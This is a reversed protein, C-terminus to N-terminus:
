GQTQWAAQAVILKVALAERGGGYHAGRVPAAGLHDLGIAVRVHRDTVCIENVPDFGVWGLDPVHAEAWAHGLDPGTADDDRRFYGAVYRAPVGRLRAVAIFIHSLERCAGSRRAFAEAASGGTDATDTDCAIDEHLRGLLRHLMDLTSGGAHEFQAAYAALAADARTLATERLFLSPPFREVAGRVVGATDQTEVEGEVMVRLDSVPGTASFAHTLNGFADEQPELRCDASVDIRWDVVYQGTHNRPTLRLTQIVGTSPTDYRYVTEHAVCIRM